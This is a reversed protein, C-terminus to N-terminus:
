FAFPNIPTIIPGSIGTNDIKFFYINGREMEFTPFSIRNVNSDRSKLFDMFWSEALFPLTLEYFGIQGPNLWAVERGKQSLIVSNNEIWIQNTTLNQVKIIGNVFRLENAPPDVIIKEYNGGCEIVIPINHMTRETHIWIDDTTGIENRNALLIKFRLYFIDGFEKDSSAPLQVELKRSIRDVTGIFASPDPFQPNFNYFIDVSYSSQNSFTVKALPVNNDNDGNSTDCSVVLSCILIFVISRILIKIM